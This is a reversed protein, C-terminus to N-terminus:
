GGIEEVLKEVLGENIPINIYKRTDERLHLGKLFKIEKGYCQQYGIRYLNLQYGLYEKDLVSTRKIDGLGLQNNEELVLDLRGAGIPTEDKFLIIPVENDLVKFKYQKQLFLFNKVEKLDEVEGTKCLREIAEHVETGRQSARNLTAVSVGDYKNKFKIKLIQTISPVIIGDVLYTHTDDFYELIHGNIEWTNM